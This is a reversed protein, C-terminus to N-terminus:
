MRLADPDLGLSGESDLLDALSEYGSRADSEDVVRLVVDVGHRELGSAFVIDVYPADALVEGVVVADRKPECAVLDALACSEVCDLDSFVEDLDSADFGLGVSEVREVVSGGEM